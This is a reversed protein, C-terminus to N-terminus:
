TDYEEGVLYGNEDALYAAHEEATSETYTVWEEHSDGTDHAANGLETDVEPNELVDAVAEPAAGLVPMVTNRLTRVVRSGAAEPAAAEWARIWADEQWESDPMGVVVRRFGDADAEGRGAKFVDRHLDDSIILAFLATRRAGLEDRVAQCDALQPAMVVPRGAYGAQTRTVIGPVVSVRLRLPALLARGRDDDLHELLGRILAPVVTEAKVGVPLLFLQGDDRDQRVTRDLTVGASMLTRELADKLRRRLDDQARNDNQHYGDIGAALCLRRVALSNTVISAGRKTGDSHVLIDSEARALWAQSLPRVM